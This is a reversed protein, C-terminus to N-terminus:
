KLLMFHKGQKKDKRKEIDSYKINLPEEGPRVGTALLFSFYYQFAARYHRSKEKTASDIFSQYSNKLVNLDHESFPETIRESEDHKISISKFIPVEVDKILRLRVAKDFVKKIATKQKVITTKSKNELQNLYEEIDIIDISKISKNSFYPIVHNVLISKYDSEAIRKGNAKKIEGDFDKLVKNSVEKFLLKKNNNLPIGAEVKAERKIKEKIALKYAEEQNETGLSIKEEVKEGDIDITVIHMYWKKSNSAYRYIWLGDEIKYRGDNTKILKASQLTNIM